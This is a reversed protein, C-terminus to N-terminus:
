SINHVAHPGGFQSSHDWDSPSAAVAGKAARLKEQRFSPMTFFTKSFLALIEYIQATFTCFEGSKIVFLNM